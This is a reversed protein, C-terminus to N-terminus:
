EKKKEDQLAPKPNPKVKNNNSKSQLDKSPPKSSIRNSQSRLNNCQEELDKNRKELEDVRSTLMALRRMLEAVIGIGSAKVFKQIFSTQKKGEQGLLEDVAQQLENEIALLEAGIM